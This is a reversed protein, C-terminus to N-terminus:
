GVGGDAAVQQKDEMGSFWANAIVVAILGLMVAIAAIVWNRGVM